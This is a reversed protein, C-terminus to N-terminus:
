SKPPNPHKPTPVPDNQLIDWHDAVDYYNEQLFRATIGRVQDVYKTRVAEAKERYEDEHCTEWPQDDSVWVPKKGKDTWYFYPYSVVDGNVVSKHYGKTVGSIDELRLRMAIPCYKRVYASFNNAKAKIADAPGSNKPDDYTKAKSQLAALNMNAALVFNPLYEVSVKDTDEGRNTQFYAIIKDIADLQFNLQNRLDDKDSNDPHYSLDFWNVVSELETLKGSTNKVTITEAVYKKFEEVTANAMTRANQQSPWFAQVFLGGIVGYPPPLLGCLGAVFDKASLSGLQGLQGLKAKTIKEDSFNAVVNTVYVLEALNTTRKLCITFPQNKQWEDTLYVMNDTQVTEGELLPFMDGIESILTKKKKEFVLQNDTSFVSFDIPKSVPINKYLLLEHDLSSISEKPLQLQALYKSFYASSDDAFVKTISFTVRSM